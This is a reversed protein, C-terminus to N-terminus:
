ATEQFLALAALVLDADEPRGEVRIRPLVVTQLSEVMDDAEPMRQPPTGCDVILRIVAADLHPEPTLGLGRREILGELPPVPRALLRGARTELAVRDDGVLRAFSGRLRALGILALALRSKGAGSPGRLLLGAEGIALATAHVREGPPPPAPVAPPSATM